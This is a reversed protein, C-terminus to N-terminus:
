EGTHRGEQETVSRVKLMALIDSWTTRRRTWLKDLFIGGERLMRKSSKPKPEWIFFTYDM